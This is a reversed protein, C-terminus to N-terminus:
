KIANEQIWKESFNKLIPFFEKFENEFLEYHRTLDLVAEDMKSDFTTRRSMGSLARHIGEKFGYNLFWNGRIMYPMMRQVDEPLMPKYEKLLGYFQQAFDDLQRHHFDDWNKALFHDYYMDVIVGSYHRYKPRLRDKSSQVVAHQDTFEDIARHLEIGRVIEATYRDNLKGGKVFDAIFNGIMLQPDDGSLYVHALFNM